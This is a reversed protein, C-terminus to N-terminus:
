AAPTESSGGVIPAVDTQCHPCRTADGPINSKCAPCIRRPTLNMAILWLLPGALAVIALLWWGVLLWGLFGCGAVHSLYKKKALIVFGPIAGGVWLLPLTVVLASWVDYLTQSDPSALALILVVFLIGALVAGYILCGRNQKAKEM